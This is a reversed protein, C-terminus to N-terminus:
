AIPKLNASLHLEDLLEKGGSVRTEPHEQVYGLVRVRPTNTCHAYLATLMTNCLM